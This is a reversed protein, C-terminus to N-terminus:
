GPWKNLQENVHAPKEQVSVTKENTLVIETYHGTSKFSIIHDRNIFIPQGSNSTLQIIM